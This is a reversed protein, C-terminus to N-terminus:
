NLRWLSEPGLCSKLLLFDVELDVTGRRGPLKNGSGARSYVIVNRLWVEPVAEPLDAPLVRQLSSCRPSLALRLELM